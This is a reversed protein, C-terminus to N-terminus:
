QPRHTAPHPRTTTVMIHGHVSGYTVTAEYCKTTILSTLGVLM